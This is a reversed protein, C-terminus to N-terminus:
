FDESTLASWGFMVGVVAAFVGMLRLVVPQRFLPPQSSRANKAALQRAVGGVDLALLVGMAAMLAGAATFLPRSTEGTAFSLAVATVFVCGYVGMLVRFLLVPRRYAGSWAARLRSSM